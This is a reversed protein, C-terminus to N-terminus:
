VSAEDDSDPPVDPSVDLDLDPLQGQSQVFPAYIDVSIIPKTTEKSRSRILSTLSFKSRENIAKQDAVVKVIATWLCEPRWDLRPQRNKGSESINCIRSSMDLRIKELAALSAEVNVEKTIEKTVTQPSPLPSPRIATSTSTSASSNPSKESVSPLIKMSLATFFGRGGAIETANEKLKLKGNHTLSRSRLLEFIFYEVIMMLCTNEHCTSGHKAAEQLCELVEKRFGARSFSLDATLIDYKFAETKRDLCFGLHYSLSSYKQDASLETSNILYTAVADHFQM